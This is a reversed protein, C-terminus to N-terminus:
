RSMLIRTYTAAGHRIGTKTGYEKFIALYRATREPAPFLCIADSNSIFCKLDPIKQARQIIKLGPMSLRIGQFMLLRDMSM